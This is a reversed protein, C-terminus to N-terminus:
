APLGIPSLHMGAFRWGHDTRVSIHTARFQGDAPTGKYAAQQAHVGIVLATDGLERVLRDRWDLESTVLDGTRYRDLWQQKDLVFGFPGVLTFDATSLEDLTAVDADVEAKAWRNELEEVTNM